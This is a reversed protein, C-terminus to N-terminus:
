EDDGGENELGYEKMKKDVTEEVLRETELNSVADSLFNIALGALGLFLGVIKFAAKNM